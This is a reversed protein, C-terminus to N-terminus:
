HPDLTALRFKVLRLLFEEAPGVKGGKVEIIREVILRLDDDSMPIVLIVKGMNELIQTHKFKFMKMWDLIEILEEAKRRDLWACLRDCCVSALESSCRESSVCTRIIELIDSQSGKLLLENLRRPSELECLLSEVISTVDRGWSRLNNTVKLASLLTATELSNLRDATINAIRSEIYDCHVGVKSQQLLHSMDDKIPRSGSDGSETVEVGRLKGFDIIGSHIPRLPITNPWGRHLYRAFRPFIKEM